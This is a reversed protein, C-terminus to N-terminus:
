TASLRSLLDATAMALNAVVRGTIYQPSQRQFEPPLAPVNAGPRHNLHVRTGEPTEIFLAYYTAAPANVMLEDLVGVADAMTAGCARIDEATITSWVVAKNPTTKVNTLARGWARLTPLSKTQYLHRIIDDRRGGAAMLHSAVALSRPTVTNSQFVKTKSIIGALLSTATQEDLRAPDTATVLEFVGESVSSDTLDVLNVQGYHTNTARHDINLIPTRYFFEANDKYLPGLHTLDPLDLTIILDHAFQGTSTKVNAPEFFGNKPALYIHLQNDRIDYSLSDLKTKSLDVNIIFSQLSALDHRIADSKPLFGHGPPMTFEPSVVQASKGGKELWVLLAVAAALADTTPKKPIIIVPTNSTNLLTVAQTTLALEM